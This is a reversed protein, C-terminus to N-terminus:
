FREDRVPKKARDRLTPTSVHFAIYFGSVIHPDAGAFKHISSFATNAFCANM